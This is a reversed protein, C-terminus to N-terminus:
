SWRRGLPRCRPGSRVWIGTHTVSVTPNKLYKTFHPKISFIHININSIWLNTTTKWKNVITLPNLIQTELLLWNLVQKSGERSQNPLPEKRGDWCAERHESRLHGDFPPSLWGSCSCPGAYCWRFCWLFTDAPRATSRSAVASSQYPSGTVLWDTDTQTWGFTM